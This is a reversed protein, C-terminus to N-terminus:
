RINVTIDQEGGAVSFKTDDFSPASLRVGTRDDNSFGYDETPAGLLNRDLKGNSNEDHYVAIAYEGAPLGQFSATLDSVDSLELVATKFPKKIFDEATNFLAFQLKGQNNRVGTVTVNVRGTDATPTM